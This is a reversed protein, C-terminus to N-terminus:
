ALKQTNLKSTWKILKEYLISPQFPKVIYDDLGFSMYKQADGEMANASLGIVPCLKDGYLKKLEQYATIGDMVPMQIDMLIVDYKGPTYAQIAELGNKVFDVNCGASFLMFGVVKQNLLKDEVHLVNIRMNMFDKTQKEVPIEIEHQNYEAKFTFTFQSGEGINSKVTIDGGMLQTLERCIALGLGTGEFPRINSTDIQTFKEFIHKQNEESIGTGTDKVVCSIIIENDLKKEVGFRIFVEGDDTFKFANSLLNNIVQKLRQDDVVIHTPVLPEISSHFRLGKSQAQHQFIERIENVFERFSIRTPRLEMKGAEIKSLDLVDNIINLLNESSVKINRVYEQQAPSLHTRMLLSTMGMIGTMPTRIEHSMNALFQQKLEASKRAVQIKQELEDNLKRDSIDRVFALYNNKGDFEFRNISIEVPFIEGNKTKNISEITISNKNKLIQLLEFWQNTSLRSDVDIISMGLLEQKTYGYKRCATENAFLFTGNEDVWFILDGANEIGLRAIKSNQELLRKQTIDDILLAIRNQPLPTIKFTFIQVPRTSESQYVLEDIESIINSKLVENMALELQKQILLPSIEDLPKGINETNLFKFHSVAAENIMELLYKITTDSIKAKFVAIGLNINSVIDKLIRASEANKKRETIDVAIGKIGTIKQGKQVPLIYTLIDILTNDPMLLRYEINETKQKKAILDLNKKATEITDPHLFSFISLNENEVSKPDIGLIKCGAKNIFLLKGQMNCQFVIDPMLQAFERYQIGSAGLTQREQVWNSAILTGENYVDHRHKLFSITEPSFFTDYENIDTKDTPYNILSNDSKIIKRIRKDIAKKLSFNWVLIVLFIVSILLVAVVLYQLFVVNPLMAVPLNSMLNTVSFSEISAISVSPETAYFIQLLGHFFASIIYHFM